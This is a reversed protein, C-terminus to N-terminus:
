FSLFIDFFLKLVSSSIRIKIWLLLSPTIAVKTIHQEIVIQVKESNNVILMIVNEWFFANLFSLM